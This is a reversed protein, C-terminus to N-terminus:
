LTSLFCVRRLGPLQVDKRLYKACIMPTVTLSILASVLVVLTLTLAVERFMRGVIGTMFLLPIFVAILSFTLSVITFGIERAGDLAAQFPTKGEEINRVINEIMVIADDVIFGTGITLAMLSLNDLSFDFLWMVAFTAVISLPLTVAAVITARLTRLFLLVVLVVLAVALVLTFEVEHISARITETRDHVIELRAGAPISRAIRPIERKLRDVTTIVNAGPQRQIDLVIATQGKYWGGVRTNELGDIVEAVDRLLVPANNRYAVVVTRYASAAAIQDMLTGDRQVGLTMVHAVGAKLAVTALKDKTAPDCVFVWPEADGLFYEIEAPTYATNLPLFAAGARVCGLYLLLAEPSKEVQVAVRDGPRVGLARLVHAIRASGAALDGYTIKAGDHNEIFM